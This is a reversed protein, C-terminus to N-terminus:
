PKGLRGNVFDTLEMIEAVRAHGFKEDEVEEGRAVLWSVIERREQDKAAITPDVQMRLEGVDEFSRYGRGKGRTVWIKM